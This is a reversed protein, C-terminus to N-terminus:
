EWHGGLDITRYGLQRAHSVYRKIRIDAIMTDNNLKIEAPKNLHAGDIMWRRYYDKLDYSMEYTNDGLHLKWKPKPSPLLGQHSEFQIDEFGADELAAKIPNARPDTPDNWDCWRAHKIHTETIEIIM